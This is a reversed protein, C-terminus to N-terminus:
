QKPLISRYKNLFFVQSKIELLYTGVDQFTSFLKMLNEKHKQKLIESTTNTDSMFYRGFYSSYM